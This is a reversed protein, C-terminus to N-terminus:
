LMYNSDETLSSFCSIKVMGVNFLKLSDNLLNNVDYIIVKWFLHNQEAQSVEVPLILPVVSIIACGDQNALQLLKFKHIVVQDFIVTRLNDGVHNWSLRMTWLIFRSSLKGLLCQRPAGQFWEFTM